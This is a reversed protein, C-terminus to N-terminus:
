IKLFDELGTSDILNFGAQGFLRKFAPHEAIDLRNIEETVANFAKPM